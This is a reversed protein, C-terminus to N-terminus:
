LAGDERESEEYCDIGCCGLTLVNFDLSAYPILYVVQFVLFNKAKANIGIKELEALYEKPSVQISLVKFQSSCIM